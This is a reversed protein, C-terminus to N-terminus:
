FEVYVIRELQSFRNKEDYAVVKITNIGEKELFVETSFSGDIQLAVPQENIEIRADPETQGSVTVTPGVLAQEQPSILRVEPPQQLLYWQFGVYGAITLFAVSLFIVLVSFRGKRRRKILPKLFERPVLVGKASEKYDRRLLAIVPQYEFGLVHAYARIYGKVFVSAPLKEFSNSELSEIHEKRIRTKQSLQAISVNQQIREKRLIDGVTQTKM